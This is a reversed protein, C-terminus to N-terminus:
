QELRFASLTISLNMMEDNLRTFEINKLNLVRKQEQIMGILDILPRPKGSVRILVPAESLEKDVDVEPLEFNLITLGKNQAQTILLELVEAQIYSLSKEKEYLYSNITKKDIFTKNKEQPEAIHRALLKQKLQYADSLEAFVAKQRSVAGRLPYVLLRVVTLALILYIGIIRIGKQKDSIDMM